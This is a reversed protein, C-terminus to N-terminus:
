EAELEPDESPKVFEKLGWFGKKNSYEGKIRGM